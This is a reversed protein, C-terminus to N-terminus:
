NRPLVSSEDREVLREDLAKNVDRLTAILARQLGDLVRLSSLEDRLGKNEAELTEILRNQDARRCLWAFM